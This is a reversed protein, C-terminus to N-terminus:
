WGRGAVYSGPLAWEKRISGYGVGIREVTNRGETTIAVAGAKNVTVFGLAALRAIATDWAAGEVGYDAAEKKRGSSKLGKVCCLAIKEANTMEPVPAALEFRALRSPHVSITAYPTTHGSNGQIVCAGEPMPRTATDLDTPNSPNFMNAGGWSGMHTKYEGTDLNVLVNFARRGDGSAVAMSISDAPSVEIDARGYGVSKLASQLAPPLDKVQVYM